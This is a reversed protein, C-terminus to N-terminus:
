LALAARGPVRLEHAPRLAARWVERGRIEAGQIAERVAGDARRGQGESRAEVREVAHRQRSLAIADHQQRRGLARGVTSDLEGYAEHRRAGERAPVQLAGRSDQIAEAAARSRADADQGPRGSDFGETQYQGASTRRVSRRHPAADRG